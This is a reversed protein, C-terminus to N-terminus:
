GDTGNRGMQELGLRVRKRQSCWAGCVHCHCLGPQPPPQVITSPAEGSVMTGGIGSECMDGREMLPHAM